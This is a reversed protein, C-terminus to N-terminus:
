AAGSDVARTVSNARAGTKPDRRRPAHPDDGPAGPALDDLLAGAVLIMRRQLRREVGPEAFNASAASDLAGFKRVTM